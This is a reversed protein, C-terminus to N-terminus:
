IRWQIRFGKATSSIAWDTISNKTKSSSPGARGIWSTTCSQRSRIGSGLHKSRMCRPNRSWTLDKSTTSNSSWDASRSSSHSRRSSWTSISNNEARPSANMTNKWVKGTWHWESYNWFTSYRMAWTSSLTSTRLVTPANQTKSSFGIASNLRMPLNVTYASSLSCSSPSASSVGSIHSPKM